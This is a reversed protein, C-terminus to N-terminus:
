EVDCGDLRRTSVGNVVADPNARGTAVLERNIQTATEPDGTFRLIEAVADDGGYRDLPSTRERSSGLYRNAWMAAEGGRGTMLWYCWLGDLLEGAVVVDDRELTFGLAARMNGHEADFVALANPSRQRM